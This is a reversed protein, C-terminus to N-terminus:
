AGMATRGFPKSIIRGGRAAASSSAKAASGLGVGGGVHGLVLALGLGLEGALPHHLLGGHAVIELAVDVGVLVAHLRVGVLAGRHGLGVGVRAVGGDGLVVFGHLREVVGLGASIGVLGLFADVHLDQLDGRRDSGEADAGREGL